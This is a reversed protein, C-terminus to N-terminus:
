AKARAILATNAERIGKRSSGQFGGGAGGRTGAPMRGALGAQVLGLGWRRMRKSSKSSERLALPTDFTLGAHSRQTSTAGAKLGPMKEEETGGLRRLRPVEGAPPLVRKARAERYRRGKM